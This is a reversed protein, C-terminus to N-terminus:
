EANPAVQMQAPMQCCCILTVWIMWFILMVVVVITLHRRRLADVRAAALPSAIQPLTVAPHSTMEIIIIINIIIMIIINIIIIM